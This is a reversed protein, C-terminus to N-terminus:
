LTHSFASNEATHKDELRPFTILGDDSWKFNVMRCNNVFLNNVFCAVTAVRELFQVWSFPSIIQAQKAAVAGASSATMSINTFELELLYKGSLRANVM